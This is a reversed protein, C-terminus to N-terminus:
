RLQKHLEALLQGAPVSTDWAGEQDLIVIETEEGVGTLRVQYTGPKADDRWFAMRSLLGEKEKPAEAATFRVHFTGRDADSDEVEISEDGHLASEVNNWATGVPEHLLIYVKGSKAGILEARQPTEAGEPVV